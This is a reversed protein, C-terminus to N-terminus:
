PHSPEHLVVTGRKPWANMHTRAGNEGVTLLKARIEYDFTGVGVLEKSQDLGDWVLLMELRPKTDNSSSEASVGQTAKEVPQRSSIFRMSRMSPSSILASVELLLDRDVSKPLEIEIAFNLTGNGPVYTTPEIAVSTIKLEPPIVPGKKRKVALGNEVGILWCMLCVLATVYMRGYPSRLIKTSLVVM